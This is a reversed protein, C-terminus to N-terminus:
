VERDNAVKREPVLRVFDKLNLSYISGGKEEHTELNELHASPDSCFWKLRWVDNGNTTYYKGVDEERIM